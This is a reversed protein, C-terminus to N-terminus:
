TGDQRGGRVVSEEIVKHQGQLDVLLKIDFWKSNELWDELTFSEFERTVSFLFMLYFALAVVSCLSVDKHRTACGYLTQGHNTKGKLLLFLFLFFRILSLM